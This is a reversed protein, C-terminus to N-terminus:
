VSCHRHSILVCTCKCVPSFFLFLVTIFLSLYHETLVHWLCSFLLVSPLCAPLCLTLPHTNRPVYVWVSLLHTRFYCQPPPWCQFCWFIVTCPSSSPLGGGLLHILQGVYGSGFAWLHCGWAELQLTIEWMEERFVHRQFGAWFFFGFLNLSFLFLFGIYDRTYSNAAFSKRRPDLNIHFYTMSWALYM